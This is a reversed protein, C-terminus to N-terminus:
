WAEKGKGPDPGVRHCGDWPRWFRDSGDQGRGKPRPPKLSAEVALPATVGVLSEFGRRATFRSQQRGEALAAAATATVTTPALAPEVCVKTPPAPQLSTPRTLLAGVGFGGYVEDKFAQTRKSLVM